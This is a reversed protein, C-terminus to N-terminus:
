KVSNKLLKESQDKLENYCDLEQQSMPRGYSGYLIAKRQECLQQQQAHYASEADESNEELRRGVLSGLAVLAAPIGVVWVVWSPIVLEGYYWAAGGALLGAGIILAVIINM